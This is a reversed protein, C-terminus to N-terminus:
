EQWIFDGDMAFPDRDLDGLKGRCPKTWGCRRLDGFKHVAVVVGVALDEAVDPAPRALIAVQAALAEYPAVDDPASLKTVLTEQRALFALLHEPSFVTGLSARPQCLKCGGERKGIQPLRNM